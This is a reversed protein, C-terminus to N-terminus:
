QSFGQTTSGDVHTVVKCATLDWGLFALCGVILATMTATLARVRVLARVGVPCDSTLITGDFRRYFRVCVGETRERLLVEADARPMASINFVQKQCEACHRVRGNGVMTDWAVDCPSAVRLTDLTPLRRPALSRYATGPATENM